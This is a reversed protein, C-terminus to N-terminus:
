EKKKGALSNLIGNVISLILAFAIAWLLNQVVFGPVLASAVMVLVGNVVLSFLGLTLVSIPMTLFHLVPRIVTNIIGLVVSLMIVTIVGGTITVGPLFYAILAIAVAYLIWHIIFRM